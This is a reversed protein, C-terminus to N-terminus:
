VALEGTLLRPLLLDRTTRLKGDQLALNSVQEYLPEAFAEFQQLLPHPPVLIATGGIAAPSLETQNTAGKGMTSFRPEWDMVAQGFYHRGINKGPRIITVHTDVTCGNLPAKVQAVRGLTGEGTSNVLVDGVQLIREPKVVKSHRRALEANVRSNRICKQNIVLGEAEDDYSPTIGRKLFTSLQALTKRQWGQPVGDVIHTHEFGPFRLSVFWEHHLLRASKELLTIRRRNNEILDDYASLLDAIRQQVHLQPYEIVLKALNQKPLHKITAGTFFPAFGGIRGTHLFFYFLYRHDLGSSPRIRHLAKQIMMGPVAEQWIACRGPEGGECMVIDGRRLGFRDMENHAFRMERLNEYEFTGWRVNINALYPLLDGRNKKEDLMKGLTLEAVEALRTKTWHKM